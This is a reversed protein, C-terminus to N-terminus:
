GQKQKIQAIRENIYMQRLKYAQMYWYVATVIGFVAILGIIFRVVLLGKAGSIMTGIVGVQGIAYVAVIAAMLYYSLRLNLAALIIAVAYLGIAVLSIRLFESPDVTKALKLGPMMTLASVLLYTIMSVVAWSIVLKQQKQM